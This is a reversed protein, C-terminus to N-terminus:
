SRCCYIKKLAKEKSTKKRQISLFFFFWKWCKWTQSQMLLASTNCLFHQFSSLHRFHKKYFLIGEYSSWKNKKKNEGALNFSMWIESIILETSNERTVTEAQPWSPFTELFGLETFNLMRTQSVWSFLYSRYTNTQVPILVIYHM